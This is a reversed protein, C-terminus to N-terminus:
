EYIQANEFIPNSLDLGLAEATKKNVLKISTENYQSPVEGPTKGGLVELALGAAQKGHEYYNVGESMLLGNKVQGEEASLSPIKNELLNASVIPAANAVLNDTLAFLADIKGGMSAIAQPIDNVNNIGVKELGINKEGLVKELEEVQVASNQESTNFLVGFTKVEPYLKLFEDIQDSSDVYDSVGTINNGSAEFTDVLGAGVPDTVASYIIPIESTSNKAGQASPTSVAYIIDVQNNVLSEVLSPILSMEGNASIDEIEVNPYKAKVEDIFGEAAADLSPHDMFRIIGIKIPEDSAEDGAEESTEETEIVEESASEESTETEAPQSSCAALSLSLSLMLVLLKKM